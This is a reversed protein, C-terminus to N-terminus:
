DMLVKQYVPLSNASETNAVSINLQAIFYHSLSLSSHVASSVTNITNQLLYPLTCAQKTFPLTFHVRTKYFALYLAGENQLHHPLTCWQKTFPLTFHV